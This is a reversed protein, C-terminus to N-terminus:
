SVELQLKIDRIAMNDLKNSIKNVEPADEEFWHVTYEINFRIVKCVPVKTFIVFYPTILM